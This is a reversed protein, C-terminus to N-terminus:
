LATKLGPDVLKALELASAVDGDTMVSVSCDVNTAFFDVTTGQKTAARGVDPLAADQAHAAKFSDLTQGPKCDVSVGRDFRNGVYIKCTLAHDAGGITRVMHGTRVSEPLLADCKNPAAPAASTASGGSKDSDSKKSGCGVCVVVAIAIWSKM